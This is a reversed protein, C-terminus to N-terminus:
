MSITIKLTLIDDFNATYVNHACLAIARMRLMALTSLLRRRRGM